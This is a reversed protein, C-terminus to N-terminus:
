VSVSAAGATATLTGDDSNTDGLTLTENVATGPNGTLTLTDHGKGGVFRVPLGGQKAVLGNGADLTLTDDGSGGLVVIRQVDALPVDTAAGNDTVRVTQADKLAITFQDAAATGAVTVIGATVTVTPVTREELTELNLACRLAGPRPRSGRSAKRNKLRRLLYKWTSM